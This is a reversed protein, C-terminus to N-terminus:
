ATTVRKVRTGHVVNDAWKQFAQERATQTLQAAIQAKVASYPMLAGPRSAEVEIISYGLATHVIGRHRSKLGEVEHLVTPSLGTSTGMRVWGLSGGRNKYPDISDRRALATFHAGHALQGMIADASKETKVTIQRILDAPPTTYLAAHQQYYRYSAGSAITVHATVQNFTEWIVWQRAVYTRFDTRSLHSASLRSRLASPGGVRHTLSGSIEHGAEVLANSWTTVHHRLAWNVVAQQDVLTTVQARKIGATSPLSIGQLVQNSERTVALDKQTLTKSGVMAVPGNSGVGCGALGVMGMLAIIKGAKHKGM